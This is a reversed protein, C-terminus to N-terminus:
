EQPEEGLKEFLITELRERLPEVQVESIVKSAFAHILMNRAAERSVGRSRLYFLGDEDLQGVTAGHTCKVDDAWIKLQPKSNITAEDSLLLSQNSQFANTKQADQRVIITGSFVGQSKEGYIGKYLEHSECHPEAHDLLTHNDVHQDGSIVTLGNLTANAASGSLRANVDNRVLKGGFSFTHTRLTGNKSIDGQITTIHLAETSEQQVRYHDVSAGAGVVFEAVACTFYKQGAPGSFSEVISGQAGDEAIVLMRPHTVVDTEGTSGFVLHVPTKCTANKRFIVLAGDRVFATNLASFATENGAFKGLHANLLDCIAGKEKFVAAFPYVEVGKPLNAVDSREAQFFGNVFTMRAAVDMGPVNAGAFDCTAVLQASPKTALKFSGSRVPTLNTYRWEEDKPAPFGNQTLQDFANKRVAHFPLTSEGNLSKEFELFNLFVWDSGTLVKEATGDNM